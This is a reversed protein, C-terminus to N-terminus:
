EHPKGTRKDPAHQTILPAAIAIFLFTSLIFVGIMAVTNGRILKLIDKM